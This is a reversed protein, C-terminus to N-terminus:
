LAKRRLRAEKLTKVMEHSRNLSLELRDCHQKVRERRSVFERDNKIKVDSRVALNTTSTPRQGTMVEIVSSNGLM